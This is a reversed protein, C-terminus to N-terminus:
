GGDCQSFFFTVRPRVGVCQCSTFYYNSKLQLMTTIKLNGAKRLPLARIYSIPARGPVQVIGAPNAVRARERRGHLADNTTKGRPKKFNTTRCVPSRVPAGLIPLLLPPSPTDHTVSSCRVPIPYPFVAFYCRLQRPLLPVAAM